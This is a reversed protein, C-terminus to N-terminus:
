DISSTPQVGMWFTLQEEANSWIWPTSQVGLNHTARWHKVLDLWSFQNASCGDLIHTARATNSWIQDVSSAPQVAKWFTLGERNWLIQDVSSAPQVHMWFTLQERTNWWIWNIVLNASCRDLIHTVRWNKVLDSWPQNFVWGALSNSELTEGSRTM